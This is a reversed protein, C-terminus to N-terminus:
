ETAYCKVKPDGHSEERWFFQPACENGTNNVLVQGELGLGLGLVVVSSMAEARPAGLIRTVGTRRYVRHTM